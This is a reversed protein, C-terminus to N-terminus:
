PKFTQKREEEERKKKEEIEKKRKYIEVDGNNVDRLEVFPLKTRELNPNQLIPNRFGAGVTFPDISETCVLGRHESYADDEGVKRWTGNLKLAEGTKQVFEDASKWKIDNSYYVIVQIVRADLLQLELHKLDRLEPFPSSSVLSIVNDGVAKNLENRVYVSSIEVTTLGIQNASVAPFEPFRKQIDSMSMGLRFGRIEPSQEMKVTCREQVACSSVIGVILGLVLLRIM